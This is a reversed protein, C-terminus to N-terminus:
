DIANSWFFGREFVTTSFTSLRNLFAAMGSRFSTSVTFSSPTSKRKVGSISCSNFCAPALLVSISAIRWFQRPSCHILSGNGWNSKLVTVSSRSPFSIEERLRRASHKVSFRLPMGRSITLIGPSAKRMPEGSLSSLRSPLSPGCCEQVTVSHQPGENGERKDESEPSGMLFADGPIRVMELPIGNLNETFCEARLNRPSIENGDLDLTVTKFDFQPLPENICQLGRCNQRIAEILTKSAGAQKLEQEIEPTLRFDVGDEKVTEVLKREPIAAKKFRSLVNLVVTKSLPKKQDLAISQSQSACNFPSSVLLWCATLTVITVMNRLIRDMAIVDKDRCEIIQRM